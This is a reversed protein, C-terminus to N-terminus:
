PVDALAKRLHFSARYCSAKLAGESLGTRECAERVSLEELYRLRVHEAQDVSGLGDIAARLRHAESREVVEDAPDAFRDDDRVEYPALIGYPAELRYRASKFHDVILNRATAILFGGVGGNTWEFSPMRRWVRVFAEQTLDEALQQHRVRRYVFFYVNDRLASYLEGFAAPDGAKALEALARLDPQM